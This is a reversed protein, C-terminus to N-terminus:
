TEKRSRTTLPPRWSHKRRATLMPRQRAASKESALCRDIGYGDSNDAVLFMHQEARAIGSVLYLLVALVILVTRM